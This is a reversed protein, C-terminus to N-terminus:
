IWFTEFALVCKFQKPPHPQIRCQSSMALVTATIPANFDLMPSSCSMYGCTPNLPVGLKIEWFVVSPLFCIEQQNYFFKEDWGFFNFCLSMM